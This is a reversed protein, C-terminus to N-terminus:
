KGSDRVLWFRFLRRATVASLKFFDTRAREVEATTMQSSFRNTLIAKFTPWHLGLTKCVVLVGDYRPNQILRDLLTVPAMSLRALGVTMEEYRGANAFDCVAGENLQHREKMKDVITEALRFDRKPAPERLAQASGTQSLELGGSEVQEVLRARVVETAKALLQDLLQPPLDKRGAVTASLEADAEARKTLVGFGAQSFSAGENRSLKHIVETDGRQVLIDTVASELQSRQSIASLHGQGKQEAIEILDQNSLQSSEALVPAAVAIEDHRALRRVVSQPAQGVPALRQSLEPLIRTEVQEILRNLVDGFLDVQQRNYQEANGLFLDTVHRLMDARREPTGENIATELDDILSLGAQM